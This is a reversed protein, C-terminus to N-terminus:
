SIHEVPVLSTAPIRSLARTLSAGPLCGKHAGRGIGGRRVVRRCAEQARGTISAGLTRPRAAVGRRAQKRGHITCDASPAAHTKPAHARLHHAGGVQGLVQAGLVGGVAVGEEGGELEGEEGCPNGGRACAAGRAGGGGGGAGRDGSRRKVM